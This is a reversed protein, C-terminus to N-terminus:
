TAFLFPRVFGRFSVGTMGITSCSCPPRLRTDGWRLWAASAPGLIVQGRRARPGLLWLRRGGTPARVGSGWEQPYPLQSIEPSARASSPGRRFAGAVRKGSTVLPVSYGKSAPTGASGGGVGCSVASAGHHHRAALADTALHQRSAASGADGGSVLARTSHSSPRQGILVVLSEDDPGAAPNRAERDGARFVLMLGAARAAPATRTGSSARAGDRIPARWV